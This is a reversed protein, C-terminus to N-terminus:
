DSPALKLWPHVVVYVAYLPWLFSVSPVRLHAGVPLTRTKDGESLTCRSIGLGEDSRIRSFEVLLGSSGCLYTFARVLGTTSLRSLRFVDGHVM